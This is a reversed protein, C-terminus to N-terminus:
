AGGAKPRRKAYKEAYNFKMGRAGCPECHEHVEILKNM